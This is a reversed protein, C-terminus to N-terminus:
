KNSDRKEREVVDLLERIEGESMSFTMGSCWKFLPCAESSPVEENEDCRYYDCIADCMAFFELVAERKKEKSPLRKMKEEDEMERLRARTKRDIRAQEEDYRQEETKEAEAKDVYQDCSTCTSTRVNCDLYKQCGYCLSTIGIPHPDEYPEPILESEVEEEEDDEAAEEPREDGPNDTDSDSVGIEAADSNHDITKQEPMQEKQCAADMEQKMEKITKYSLEGDEMYKELAERQEAEAMGALEYAASFTIHKQELAERLEPILNNNVTEIQAIKTKSMKLMGAIVDRLRGSELDYGRLKIGNERMYELEEKLEAEERLLTATDKVRSSNAIILEIKEEHPNAPSRVQCTVIEFEKYGQEALMKLARWRREGSIIRYEGQEEPAYMVAINELMGVALIEAAKEEIGEQPYFNKSNSYIKHISIDKTRFRARPTEEVGKKSNKSLADVVSFGTAM